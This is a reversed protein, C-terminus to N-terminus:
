RWEMDRYVHSNKDWMLDVVENESGIARNKAHLMKMVGPCDSPNYLAPRHLMFVLDADQEIEGSERLDALVPAKSERYEVGRSLQAAVLMPVNLDKCISFLAASVYGARQTMTDGCKKDYVDLFKTLYDVVVLKIETESMVRELQFRFDAVTRRGYITKIPMSSVLGAADAIKTRISDHGERMEKVPVGSVIACLRENLQRDTMEM